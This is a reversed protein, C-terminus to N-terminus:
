DMLDIIELLEMRNADFFANTSPVNGKLFNLMSYGRLVYEKRWVFVVQIV